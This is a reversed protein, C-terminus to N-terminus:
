RWCPASTKPVRTSTSPTFATYIDQAWGNRDAVKAPLLRVIQAKVEAESREPQQPGRATSCGALVLLPTLCLILRRLHM